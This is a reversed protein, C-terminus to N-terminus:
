QIPQFISGSNTAFTLERCVILSGHEEKKAIGNLYFKGQLPTLVRGDGGCTTYQIKITLTQHIEGHEIKKWNKDGHEDNEMGIPCIMKLLM